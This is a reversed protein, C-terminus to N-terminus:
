FTKKRTQTQKCRVKKEHICSAESFKVKTKKVWLNIECVLKQKAIDVIFLLVM